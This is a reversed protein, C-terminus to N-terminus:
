STKTKGDLTPPNRSRKLLLCCLIISAISWHILSLKSWSFPNPDGVMKSRKNHNDEEIGDNSISALIQFLMTRYFPVSVAAANRLVDLTALVSGLSEKPTVVTVLSRLSLRLIANSVAVIPCIVILFLHFSSGLELLTAFALAFSAVCAANYENGLIKLTSQVFFTQFLLALVSTYSRIYGRQHPEIGFMQEYYNTMSAHSTAMAIWTYILISLIVSGLERSSFCIKINRLFTKLKSESQHQNNDNWRNKPQQIKENPLLITALLFNFIFLLSALLAPAKKDVHKYLIGGLSPGVIFAFTASATLRGLHLARENESSYTSIMSTSITSTQKILGVVLRSVILGGMGGYVILSYSLSSGLFSLYLCYKRSLMGTDLLGGILFGGVIQSSSYLSSLLERQSANTVGADLFYQNLLPVVLSVSLMDLVNLILLSTTPHLILNDTQVLNPLDNNNDGNNNSTSSESENTKESISSTSTAVSKPAIDSESRDNNRFRTRQRIM